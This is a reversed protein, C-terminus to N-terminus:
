IEDVISFKQQKGPFGTGWSKENFPLRLDQPLCFAVSHPSVFATCSSQIGRNLRTSGRFYNTSVKHYQMQFAPVQIQRTETLIRSRPM